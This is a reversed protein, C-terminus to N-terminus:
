PAGGQAKVIAELLTATVNAHSKRQLDEPDTLHSFAVKCAELLADHANCARVIFAANAAAETIELKGVTASNPVFAADCALQACYGIEWGLRSPIYHAEWPTRTHESM